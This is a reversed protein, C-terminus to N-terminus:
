KALCRGLVALVAAAVAVLGGERLLAANAAFALAIPVLAWPRGAGALRAGLSAADAGGAESGRAGLALLWLWVGAAVLWGGGAAFLREAEFRTWVLGVLVLAAIALAGLALRRAAQIGASAHHGQREAGLVYVGVIVGWGVFNGVPVGLWPGPPTWRWLGSRVAVPEMLLDLSVGVLAAFLALGLPSRRGLRHALALASLIVAAWCAAVALPVGGPALRWASGYDHSAFVRIAVRELAYGYAGLAVFELAARGPGLARSAHVLALLSALPAVVLEFFPTGLPIM